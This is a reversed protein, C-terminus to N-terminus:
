ATKTENKLTEALASLGKSNSKNETGVTETNTKLNRRKRRIKPAVNIKDNKDQIYGALLISYNSLDQLTDIVSESNVNTKGTRVINSIRSIKDTMRTLFGVEASCIGLEEVQRFNAFADRDGGSYDKNKAEVTKHMKEITNRHFKLFEEHKM